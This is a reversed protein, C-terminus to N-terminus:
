TLGILLRTWDKADPLLKVMKLLKVGPFIIFVLLTIRDVILYPKYKRINQLKYVVAGFMISLCESKLVMADARSNLYVSSVLFM